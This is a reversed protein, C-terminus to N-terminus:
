RFTKGCLNCPYRPGEMHTEVHERMHGKHKSNFQCMKCTFPEGKKLRGFLGDIRKSLEEPIHIKQKSVSRLATQTKDIEREYHHPKFAFSGNVQPKHAIIEKAQTKKAVNEKAQSKHAFSEVDSKDSRTFQYDNSKATEPKTDKEEESDVTLGKLELEEALIFFNKLEKELISVEGYYIFDVVAKLQSAKIGRM